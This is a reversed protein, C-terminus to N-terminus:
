KQMEKNILKHNIFVLCIGIILNELFIFWKHSSSLNENNFGITLYYFIFLLIGIVVGTILGAPLKKKNLINIYNVALSLLVLPISFYMLFIFFMYFFSSFRFNSGIFIINIVTKLLLLLFLIFVYTLISKLEKM